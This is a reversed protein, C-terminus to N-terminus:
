AGVAAAPTNHFSFAAPTNGRILEGFVAFYWEARISWDWPAIALYMAAVMAEYKEAPIKEFADLFGLTNCRHVIVGNRGNVILEPVNGVCSSVVACGSAAGELVINPTGESKSTCIVYRGSNFWELMENADMSDCGPVTTRFDPTLKAAVPLLRRLPHLITRYGKVDDEDEAKSVSGIWLVTNPREAWPVLSKFLRLDVGNSINCARYERKGFRGAAWAAYNNVIVYDAAQLTEALSYGPRGVGSNHTSVLPMGLGAATFYTRLGPAQKPDM